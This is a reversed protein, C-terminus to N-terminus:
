FRLLAAVPCAGLQGPDLMLVEGHRRITEVAAANILDQEGEIRADDVPFAPGLLGYEEAGQEVLLKHIRGQLAADLVERVGTLVHDRRSTERFVGLAENTREQQMGRVAREGHQALELLSLHAPSTPRAELVHPYQAVSRYAAMEQAIGALVLPRGNLLSALGHDVTKFYRCLRSHAEDRESGTGFRTASGQVGAASHSQLDHDPTESALTEEFSTPVDEPLPVEAYKGDRWSGLRLLKKTIALFYFEHVPMLSDLLPTIHPHSAVVVREAVSVGLAFQRFVGPSAIIVSDCGGAAQTTEEGLDEFPKLLQDVSGLFRRQTLQASAERLVGRMRDTAPLDPAGPHRAPLLVTIFPGRDACIEKVADLSILDMYTPAITGLTQSLAPKMLTPEAKDSKGTCPMPWLRFNPLHGLLHVLGRRRLTPM